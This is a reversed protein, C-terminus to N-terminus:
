FNAIKLKVHLRFQWNQVRAPRVWLDLIDTVLRMGDGRQVLGILNILLGCRTTQAVTVTIPGCFSELPDIQYSEAVFV